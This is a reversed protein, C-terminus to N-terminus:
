ELSVKAGAAHAPPGAPCCRMFPTTNYFPAAMVRPFCKLDLPTAEVVALLCCERAGTKAASIHM